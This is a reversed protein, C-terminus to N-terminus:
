SLTKVADDPKGKELQEYAKTIAQDLKSQAVAPAALLALAALAALIRKM